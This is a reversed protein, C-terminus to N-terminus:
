LFYNIGFRLINESFKTTTTVGASAGPVSADPLKVYLYEVNLGWHTPFYRTEVGVGATWGPQVHKGQAGGVGTGTTRPTLIRVDGLALGGTLYPLLPAELRCGLRPRLTALWNNETEYNYSDNPHSSQGRVNSASIDGELSLVLSNFQKNFGALAGGTTGGLDFKGTTNGDSYDRQSTGNATGVHAGFYFGNWNIGEGSSAEANTAFCIAALALFTLSLSCFKRM